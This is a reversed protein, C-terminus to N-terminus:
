LEDDDTPRIGYLRISRLERRLRNRYSFIASLVCYTIVWIVIISGASDREGSVVILMIMSLAALISVIVM